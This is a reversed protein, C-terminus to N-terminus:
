KRRGFQRSSISRGIRSLLGPKKATMRGYHAEAVRQSAQHELMGPVGPITRGPVPKYTATNPGYGGKRAVAEYHNANARLNDMNRVQEMSYQPKPDNNSGYRNGKKPTYAM